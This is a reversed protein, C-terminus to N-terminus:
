KAISNDSYQDWSEVSSRVVHVIYRVFRAGSRYTNSNGWRGSRLGQIYGRIGTRNRPDTM